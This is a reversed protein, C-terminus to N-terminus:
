KFLGYPDKTFAEGPTIVLCIKSSADQRPLPMIYGNIWIIELDIIINKIEISKIM